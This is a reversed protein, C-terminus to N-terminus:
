PQYDAPLENWPNVLMLLEPVPEPTPAPTPTPTPVPTPEPTPLPTPEPTPAPTEVPLLPEGSDLRYMALTCLVAFLVVTLLLSIVVRDKNKLKM